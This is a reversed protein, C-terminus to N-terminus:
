DTGSASWWSRSSCWPHRSCALGIAGVGLRALSAPVSTRLSLRQLRPAGALMTGIAALSLLSYMLGLRSDTLAHQRQYEFVLIVWVGWIQGFSWYGALLPLTRSRV